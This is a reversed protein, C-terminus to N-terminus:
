RPLNEYCKRQVQRTRKKEHATVISWPTLSWDTLESTEKVAISFGSPEAFVTYTAGIAVELDLALFGELFSIELLSPALLDLALDALAVDPESEAFNPTQSQLYERWQM